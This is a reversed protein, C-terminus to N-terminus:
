CIAQGERVCQDFSAGAQHTAPPLLEQDAASIGDLHQPDPGGRSGLKPFVNPGSTPM